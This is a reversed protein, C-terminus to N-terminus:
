VALQVPARVPYDSDTLVVQRGVGTKSNVIFPGLLNVFILDNDADLTVSCFVIADEPSELDLEEYEVEPVDPAYDPFFLWPITVIMGVESEPTCSLLMFASEDSEGLGELQWEVAESLGPVGNPFTVLQVSDGEASQDLPRAATNM